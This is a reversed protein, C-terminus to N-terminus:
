VPFGAGGCQLEMAEVVISGNEPFFSLGLGIGGVCLERGPFFSLEAGLRIETEAFGVIKGLLFPFGLGLGMAMFCFKSAALFSFRLGFGTAAAAASEAADFLKGLLFAFGLLLGLEAELCLRNVPLFPFGLGLNAAFALKM